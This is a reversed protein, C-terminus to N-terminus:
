VKGVKCGAPTRIFTDENSNVEQWMFINKYLHFTELQYRLTDWPKPNYYTPYLLDTEPGIVGEARALAEIPTGPLIRINNLVVTGLNRKKNHLNYIEKLLQVGKEVTEATEGPVNVMFHYVSVVDTEAVLSAAKLIDEVTMNKNLINLAEQSLGDPSFAFCECGARAFLDVNEKNLYDERFFGSWKVKLKRKLMEQCLAELHGIPFNIVPDTFHFRDIGYEKQLAEMEDVVTEPPRCRVKKGQLNPYVCYACEFPCGRKTEIGISPVYSNGSYLSPELLERAPPIYNKMDFEKAPPMVKVGNGERKCLGQLAPPNDLSALLVPFTKEGEGILGYDIEPLELMIREPFLSFGTGGVIVKATPLIAKVLRVAVFFPPILSATKNALPDVNRFSLSVVNPRFTSLKEKLAGFPDLELNMDLIEIQYGQNLIHTALSIIGIPYVREPSASEMSLAQVFLIRM